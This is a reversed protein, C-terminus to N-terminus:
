VTQNFITPTCYFNKVQSSVCSRINGEALSHLGEDNNVVQSLLFISLAACVIAFSKRLTLAEMRLGVSFILAIVFSMNAVPIVISAEGVKVASMLCNVILYVLLGSLFSYTIKKRTFRFRGERGIAYLGGGIIWCSSILLLMMEPDAQQLIGGKTIVGYTARFISAVIAVSFFLLFPRGEGHFHSKQYLLLVGCIGMVIGAWKFLGITEGLFIVSLLIVGITNLRYITSGLSVNIHTLSEILLLNSLTLFIGASLGFLLTTSNLTFPTGKFWFTAAQLVTWIIGIGLVYMGRSRDKTSYRKFVVDNLGAFFMSLTAFLIPSNSFTM